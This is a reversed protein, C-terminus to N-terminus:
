RPRPERLSTAITGAHWAISTIRWEGAIRVMMLANVGTDFAPGEPTRRSDYESFVLAIDGRVDAHHATEIEYFDNADFYPQRTTRYQEQTLVEAQRTGNADPYLVYSCGGPAFLSDHLTWDRAAGAPGSITAYLAKTVSSTDNSTM